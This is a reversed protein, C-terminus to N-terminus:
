QLNYEDDEVPIESALQPEKHAEDVLHNTRKVKCVKMVKGKSTKKSTTPKTTKEKVHKTQKAPTPNKPKDAKSATKKKRGEKTTPKRAAMKLYQQYHESNQIVDTILEQPIPKGFVEDKEGKPVFKLNGLLFDDGMVHVPSRPRRHINHRSGLYYIILKTFRCYPIVYPTLKKTPINLNAQHSFFTQIAQVFEEWLLEAYDVNSRTVIGWLMQLVPHRPKDNGSTKDTLCLNILSLIARWPQYLNNVRMWSVFHIEEPYGLENVFDMVQEGALPSVFPHASDIPTIELAKRLLDVNLTFWKEDLHFNYVRTKVDQALTNWFQQVYITPVTASATVTRFFNTNPLWANFPLIQEDFRTPAPAPVNEEAM